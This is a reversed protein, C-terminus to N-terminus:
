KLKKIQKKMKKIYNDINKETLIIGFDINKGNIKEAILNGLAPKMHNSDFFNNHNKTYKDIIMFNYVKKYVFVLERLWKFYYKFLKEKKYISLQDITVPTTFIIFKSKSFERRLKKWYEILSDDYQYNKIKKLTKKIKKELDKTPKPYKINNRTYYAHTIKFNQKINKISYRLIDYNYLLKYRYFKSSSKQLFNQKSHKNTQKNTGFFDVGLIIKKPNKQTLKAFTKIFYEYEYPYMGNSAYNFLNFNFNYQNIFTTRSSGLMVSEFQNNIFYLFNTKQERENFDIQKNNLFNSHNFTWYPDIYFNLMAILNIAVLTVTIFFIVYKKPNM